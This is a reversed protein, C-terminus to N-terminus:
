RCAHSAVAFVFGGVCIRYVATRNTQRGGWTCGRGSRRVHSNEINSSEKDFLAVGASQSNGSSFLSGASELVHEFHEAHRLFAERATPM